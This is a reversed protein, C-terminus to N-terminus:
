KNYLHDNPLIFKHSNLLPNNQILTTALVPKVSTTKIDYIAWNEQKHSPTFYIEDGNSAGKEYSLCYTSDITM